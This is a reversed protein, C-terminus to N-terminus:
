DKLVRHSDCLPLFALSRILVFLEQRKFKTFCSGNHLHNSLSRFVRRESKVHGRLTEVRSIRSIARVDTPNDSHYCLRIKELLRLRTKNSMRSERGPEDKIRRVRVRNHERNLANAGYGQM